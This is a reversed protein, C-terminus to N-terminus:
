FTFVGRALKGAALDDMAQQYDELKYQQTVLEDLKLRGDLYLDVYKPIDRHPRTSGYRCGMIGRDVYALHLIPMPYVTDATPVGLIICNGGWNLSKVADDLAATSGTCEFSWDVGGASFPGTDAEDSDPILQRIASAVDGTIHKPSIFDTAGFERALSEKEDVLDVAIIRTAGAIRLGQIVNLGIGGVGFVAATEGPRVRARNFVAGVGTVVGCAILCASTFPIAPDIVVAQRQSVLTYEAFGSSAAFNYVPEGDRIFPTTANALTGRCHTPKGAECYECHGCNALTHVVVHDGVKLRSVNSGVEAIIGAPEHGLVVPSPWAIKGSLVSLDSQCLGCAKIQIKVEDPGPSRIELDEILELESGNYILAKM